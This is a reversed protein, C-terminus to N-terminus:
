RGGGRGGYLFSEAFIGCNCLSRRLIVFIVIVKPVQYKSAMMAKERSPTEDDDYADGVPKKSGPRGRKRRNQVTQAVWQQPVRITMDM